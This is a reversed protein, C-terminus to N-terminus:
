LSMFDLNQTTEPSAKSTLKATLHRQGHFNHAESHYIYGGHFQPGRPTPSQLLLSPPHQSLKIKGFGVKGEVNASPNPPLCTHTVIYLLPLLAERTPQKGWM